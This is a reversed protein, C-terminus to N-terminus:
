TEQHIICGLNEILDQCSKACKKGVEFNHRPIMEGAATIIHGYKAITRASLMGYKIRDEIIGMSKKFHRPVNIKVHRDISETNLM